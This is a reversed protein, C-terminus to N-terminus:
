SYERTDSTSFWIGVDNIPMVDMRFSFFCLYASSRNGFLMPPILNEFAYWETAVAM